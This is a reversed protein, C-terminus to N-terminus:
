SRALGSKAVLPVVVQIASSERRTVRLRDIMARRASLMLDRSAIERASFDDPTVASLDRFRDHASARNRSRLPAEGARGCISTAPVFAPEPHM